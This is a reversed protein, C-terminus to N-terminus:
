APRRYAAWGALGAVAGAAFFCILWSRGSLLHARRAVSLALVSAFAIAMFTVFGRMNPPMPGRQTM